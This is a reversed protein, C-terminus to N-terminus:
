NGGRLNNGVRIAVPFASLQRDARFNKRIQRYIRKLRRSVASKDVNEATAIETVTLGDYFIQTLLQKQEPLLNAMANQLIENECNAPWDETDDCHAVPFDIGYERMRELSVHRRTERRDSRKEAIDMEAIMDYLAENVEAVMRTGDAFTYTVTKM